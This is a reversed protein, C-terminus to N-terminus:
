EKSPFVICEADELDLLKGNSYLKIYISGFSLVIPEDTENIEELSVYGM